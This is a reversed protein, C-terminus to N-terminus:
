TGSDPKWDPLILDNDEKQELRKIRLDLRKIKEDVEREYLKLNLIDTREQLEARHLRLRAKAEDADLKDTWFDGPSSTAPADAVPASSCGILGLSLGSILCAMLTNRM